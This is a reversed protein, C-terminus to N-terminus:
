IRTYIFAEGKTSRERRRKKGCRRMILMKEM